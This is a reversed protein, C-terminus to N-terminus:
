GCGSAVKLLQEAADDERDQDGVGVVVEAVVAEQAFGGSPGQRRGEVEVRVGFGRAREAGGDVGVALGDRADLVTELRRLHVTQGRGSADLDNVFRLLRGPAGDCRPESEGSALELQHESGEVLRLARSGTRDDRPM